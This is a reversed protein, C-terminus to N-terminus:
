GQLDRKMQEFEDRTLEGKAYRRKLIDPRTEAGTGPPTEDQGRGWPRM